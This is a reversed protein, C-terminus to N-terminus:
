HQRIVPTPTAISRRASSPALSGDPKRLWTAGHISDAFRSQLDAFEFELQLLSTATDEIELPATTPMQVLDEYRDLLTDAQNAFETLSLEPVDFGQALLDLVMTM